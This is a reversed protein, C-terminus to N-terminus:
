EYSTNCMHPTIDAAAVETLSRVADRISPLAKLVYGNSRRANKGPTGRIPIELLGWRALFQVSRSVEIPRLHTLSRDRSACKAAITRLGIFLTDGLHLRYQIAQQVLVNYVAAAMRGRPGYENELFQQWDQIFARQIPAWEKGTAREEWEHFACGERECISYGLALRNHSEGNLLGSDCRLGTQQRYASDVLDLMAQLTSPGPPPDCYENAFELLAEHAEEPTLESEKAELAVLWAIPRHESPDTCPSNLLRHICDRFPRDKPM